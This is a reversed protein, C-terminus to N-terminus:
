WRFHAFARNAEAMRQVDQKKKVAEGEANYAAMIQAALNKEMPGVQSRAAEIIWRMALTEGRDSRVPIPVQYTAGGVRRSRVEQRPKVNALAQDLVESPDKQVKKEIEELAKYVIRRALDKKGDRMVKNIFRAVRVSNYRVDPKIDRKKDKPKLKKRPM